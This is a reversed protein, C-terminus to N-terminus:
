QERGGQLDLAIRDILTAALEEGAAVLAEKGGTIVDMHASKGTADLYAIVKGSKVRILKVTVNAFCSIMSSQPINGGASAVAKGVVVYKARSLIGFDVARTDSLDVQRYAKEKVITKVDNPEVITWGQDILKQAVASETASLDVESAWWSNQPGDINQEIPVCPISPVQM